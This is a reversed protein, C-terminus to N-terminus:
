LGGGIGDTEPAAARALPRQLTRPQEEDLHQALTQLAAALDRAEFTRLMLTHGPLDLKVLTEGLWEEHQPELTITGGAFRADVTMTADFQPPEATAANGPEPALALITMTQNGKLTVESKQGDDLHLEAAAKQTRM